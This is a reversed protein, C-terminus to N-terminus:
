GRGRFQTLTPVAAPDIASNPSKYSEEFQEALKELKSKEGPKEVLGGSLARVAETPTAVLGAQSIARLIRSCLLALMWHQFQQPDSTNLLSSKAFTVYVPMVGEVRLSKLQEQECVRLLLSKGTGRSGEIIIPTPSKLKEVLERDRQIPVFLELVAEPKLDETRIIFDQTQSV